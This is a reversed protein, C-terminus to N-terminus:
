KKIIKIKNNNIEIEHYDSMKTDRNILSFIVLKHSVVIVKDYELYKKLVKLTRLRISKFSEFPGLNKYNSNFYIKNIDPLWEHLDNEIVLDTNTNNSIINATEHARTFPSSIIIDSDKLVKNSSLKNADTIGKKSLPAFRTSYYKDEMNLVKKYDPCAHRVLIFRTM